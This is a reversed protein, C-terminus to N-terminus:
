GAIRRIWGARRPHTSDRWVRCPASGWDRSNLRDPASVRWFDQRYRSLQSSRCWWETILGEGNERGEKTARTTFPAPRPRVIPEGVSLRANFSIGRVSLFPMKAQRTAHFRRVNAAAICKPGRGTKPFEMVQSTCTMSEKIRRAGRCTFTSTTFRSRPM